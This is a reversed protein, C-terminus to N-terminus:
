RIAAVHNRAASVLKNLEATSEAIADLRDELEDNVQHYLGTQVHAQKVADNLEDTLGVAQEICRAATNFHFKDSEQNATQNSM